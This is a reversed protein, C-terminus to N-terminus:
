RRIHELLFETVPAFHQQIDYYWDDQAGEISLWSFGMRVEARLKERWADEGQTLVLDIHKGCHRRVAVMHAARCECDWRYHYGLTDDRCGAMNVVCSICERRLYETNFVTYLSALHVSIGADAYIVDADEDYRRNAATEPRLSAIIPAYRCAQEETLYDDAAYQM